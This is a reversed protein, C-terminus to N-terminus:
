AEDTSVPSGDDNVRFRKGSPPMATSPWRAALRREKSVKAVSVKNSQNGGLIHYNASDEGAYLGVHGKFGNESERWFVMVAGPQDTTPSGFRAWNRAGLPNSPLPEEPLQSGICQAVFLGCWPTEDDSYPINLDKAWALLLPNSGSGTDERVGLLGWAEAYWPLDTSVVPNGKPQMTTFLAAATRPGVIGDVVLNNRVQFAKIAAITRRGRIGDHEGPDFGKAHLAQQIELINM